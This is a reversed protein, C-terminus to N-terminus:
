FALLLESGFGFGRSLGFSDNNIFGLMNKLYFNTYFRNGWKKNIYLGLNIYNFKNLSYTPIFALKASQIYQLYSISGTHLFSDYLKQCNYNVFFQNIHNSHINVGFDIAFPILRFSRINNNQQIDFIDVITDYLANFETILDQNLSYDLGNFDFSGQSFYQDEGWSIFGLESIHASLSVDQNLQYQFELDVAFGLNSLMSYDSNEFYTFDTNFSSFFPNEETGFHDYFVVSLEDSDIGFSSFGKLLKCKFGLISRDNISNAYGYFISFYNFVRAYNNDLYILNNLNQYNGDVILSIFENSLSFEGFLRHSFGYSHIISEKKQTYYFLTNEVDLFHHSVNQTNNRYDNLNIIYNNNLNSLFNNLSPKSYTVVDFGIFPIQLIQFNNATSDTDFM